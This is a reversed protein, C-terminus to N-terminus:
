NAAAECRFAGDSAVAVEPYRCLPRKRGPWPTDPGASAPIAEPAQHDVVWRELAGLSDFRDTAPGGGCHNMGPVPFLRAFSAATGGDRRNVENWWAITDSASFVPDSMGHPVILKGGHAAFASLDTSHMGVDHWASAKYPPAVAYIKPADRDFDFALQWALLKEPDPGLATPPTTFVAALSGAGLVVNLAPPGNELGVKWVRWGPAGVGADWPWPAYLAKGASDHAGSMIAVLADVQAPLLCAPDSAGSACERKRLEPLVRATTCQGIAAISGDASGDLRDCAALVATSVTRFQLPTIATKLAAVTVPLGRAKLVGAMQQTDWAEAVAARPLAFGPSMAVIGDFADPYRQAFAMGEQGGKSCGWFIKKAPDEGYARRVLWRGLDYTPKLSAYGYDARAQPDFGFVLQGGHDAVSNRQNDHGSDQAIVAYGRELATPNGAGNPGTADGIVGNSGGGGQFFFRHNWAAPLRMRFGTRYPGGITGPHEGYYGTVECHAPLPATKEGRQDLTLGAPRWVADTIVLGDVPADEAQALATCAAAGFPARRAADAHPPSASVCGGASALMLAILAGRAGQSRRGAM